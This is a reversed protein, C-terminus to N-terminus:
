SRYEPNAFGFRSGADVGQAPERVYPVRRRDQASPRPPPPELDPVDHQPQHVRQRGWSTHRRRSHGRLEAGSRGGRDLRRRVSARHLLRHAPPQLPRQVRLASATGNGTILCGGVKGYYLWQGKDNLQGSHAYLREIIKKTESSNDGLWIPGALVLVDAALVQGFLEPWADEPWGHERMDPYVGTTIPHDVARFQDVNVGAGTM